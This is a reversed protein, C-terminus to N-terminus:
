SVFILVNQQGELYQSEKKIAIRCMQEWGHGGEDASVSGVQVVEFPDAKAMAEADLRDTEKENMHKVEGYISVGDYELLLDPKDRMTVRWRNKLFLLATRAESLLEFVKQENSGFNRLKQHYQEVEQAGHRHLEAIWNDIDM